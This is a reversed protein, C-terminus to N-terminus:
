DFEDLTTSHLPDDVAAFADLRAFELGNDALTRRVKESADPAALIGRADPNSERYLSVYRSLQDVHSLTARRRKVEIIVPRGAADAGFMDVSGYAIDREHETIRLGEEIVDPHELVYAHMDAETGQLEISAADDASFRTLAYVTDLRVRVAEDPDRRRAHITCGDDDRDVTITSGPPQWNVPDRGDRRHVLLTGDPKAIVVREGPGLYGAARGEYEVECEACLLIMDGARRAAAVVEEVEGPSPDSLTEATM